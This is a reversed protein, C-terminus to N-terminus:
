ISKDGSTFQTLKLLVPVDLGRSQCNTIPSLRCILVIYGSKIYVVHVQFNYCIDMYIEPQSIRKFIGMITAAISFLCRNLRIGISTYVYM